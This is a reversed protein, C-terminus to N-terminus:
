VQEQSEDLSIILYMNNTPVNVDSEDLFNNWSAVYIVINKNIESHM